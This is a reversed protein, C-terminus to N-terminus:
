SKSVEYLIEAPFIKSKKLVDNLNKGYWTKRGAKISWVDYPIDEIKLKAGYKNTAKRKESPPIGLFRCLGDECDSLLTMGSLKRICVSGKIRERIM